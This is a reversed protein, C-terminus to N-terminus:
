TVGQKSILTQWSQRTSDSLNLDQIPELLAEEDDAATSATSIEDDMETDTVLDQAEAIRAILALMTGTADIELPEAIEVLHPKHM